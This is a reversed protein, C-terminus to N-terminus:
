DLLETEQLIKALMKIGYELNAHYDGPSKSFRDLMAGDQDYIEAPPLHYPIGLEDLYGAMRDRFRNYIFAVEGDAFNTKKALVHYSAPAPCCSAVSFRVNREKLCKFFALPQTLTEDIVANFASKTVFLRDQVWPAATHITWHEANFGYSPYFGFMFVFRRPDNARIGGTDGDNITEFIRRADAHTFHVAASDVTFFPELFHYGHGLQAMRIPGHRSALRQPGVANAADMLAILHSDGIIELM